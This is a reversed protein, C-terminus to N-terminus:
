TLSRLAMQVIHRLAELSAGGRAAVKIGSLTALLFHAAATENVSGGIEGAAKGESIRRELAARLARATTDNLMSVEPDSHGYECVANVGLCSKSPRLTFANLMAEIGKLPSGSNLSHMQDTMSEAAYTRLAELYLQRKDGFTNYLSQRSIKMAELLQDTSTGEYGHEAFASIANGLAAERDFERPRAMPLSINM